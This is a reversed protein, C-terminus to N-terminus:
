QLLVHINVSARSKSKVPLRIATLHLTITNHLRCVLSISRLRGAAAQQEETSSRQWQLAACTCSTPNHLWQTLSCEQVKGPSSRLSSRQGPKPQLTWVKKTEKDQTLIVQTGQSPYRSCTNGHFRLLNDLNVEQEHIEGRMSSITSFLDLFMPLYLFKQHHDLDWSHEHPIWVIIRTIITLGYGKFLEASTLDKLDLNNSVTFDKFFDKFWNNKSNLVEPNDLVESVM